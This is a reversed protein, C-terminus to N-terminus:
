WDNDELWVVVVTEGAASRHGGSRDSTDKESLLVSSADFSPLIATTKERTWSKKVPSPCADRAECWMSFSEDRRASPRRSSNKSDNTRNSCMWDANGVRRVVSTMAKPTRMQCSPRNCHKEFLYENLSHGKGKGEPRRDVFLLDVTFTM